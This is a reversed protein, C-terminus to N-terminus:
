PHNTSGWNMDWNGRCHCEEVNEFPVKMWFVGGLLM